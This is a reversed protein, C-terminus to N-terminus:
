HTHSKVSATLYLFKIDISLVKHECKTTDKKEYEHAYKM